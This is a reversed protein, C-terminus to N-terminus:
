GSLQVDPDGENDIDHIYTKPAQPTILPFHQSMPLYEFISMDNNNRYSMVDYHTVFGSMSDFSFPPDVPNSAGEVSTLDPTAVETISDDGDMELMSVGFMDFTFHPGHPTADLIRGIGIMGMEDIYADDLTVGDTGGRSDVLLGYEFVEDLFCMSFMSARGLSSPTVIVADSGETIGFSLHM